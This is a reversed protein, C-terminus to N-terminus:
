RAIIGGAGPDWVSLVVRPPNRQASLKELLKEAYLTANSKQTPKGSASRKDYFAAPALVAATVPISEPLLLDNDRGQFIRDATTKSEEFLKLQRLNEALAYWAQNSDVKVEILVQEYGRGKKTLLLLDGEVNAERGGKPDRALPPANVGDLIPRGFCRVDSKEGIRDLVHKEVEHESGPRPRGHKHTRRYRPGHLLTEGAPRPVYDKPVRSNWLAVLQANRADVDEEDCETGDFSALELWKKAWSVYTTPVASSM